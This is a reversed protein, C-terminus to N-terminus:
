ESRKLVRAAWMWGRFSEPGTRDLDVGRFNGVPREGIIERGDLRSGHVPPCPTNLGYVRTLVRMFM